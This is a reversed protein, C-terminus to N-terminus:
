QRGVFFFSVNTLFFLFDIQSSDSTVLGMFRISERILRQRSFFFIFRGRTSAIQGCSPNALRHTHVPRVNRIGNYIM